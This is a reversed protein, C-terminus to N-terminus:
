LQDDVANKVFEVHPGFVVHIHKKSPLFIGSTGSEMLKDKNIKRVDNLDIRLRTICNDVNLINDKGGLGEIVIKAIEAYKKEKLLSNNAMEEDERGPTSINFKKIAWTFVFYYIAFMIAGVILINYWRTNEYMLGFIGFDFITGRIYGVATHLLYLSVGTIGVMVAHFGFLLPAVFLFSFEMPETVNGLVATLVMTLIMGKVLKKNKSKATKYMALGIAPLIFMTTVMQVQAEFRTLEPLMEWAKTGPGAEFLVHNLTPIVGVFTKDGIIYTGGAPTFRVLANWVHHLGFPILLRNMTHFLFTGFHSNLLIKSLHMLGSTLFQWLFPIIIGTVMSLGVSITPVSKKGGFFAFAVPLELNYFRDAAKAAILGCIIGGLADLRLTQIGLIMAQGHQDMVSPDVINGTVNLWINITINLVLYSIVSSFVAIGKEKKAMGYAVGMAFLLPINAFVIGAVQRLSKLFTNIVPNGLFPVKAIMYSQVLAGCLGLIMGMPAMVAIPLLLSRGFRQIENNFKKMKGM